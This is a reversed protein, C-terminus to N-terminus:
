LDRRHVRKSAEIECVLEDGPRGVAVWMVGCRNGANDTATLPYCPRSRNRTGLALTENHELHLAATAQDERYLEIQRYGWRTDVAGM